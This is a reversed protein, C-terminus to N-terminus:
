TQFLTEVRSQVVQQSKNEWLLASLISPAPMGQAYGGEQKSLKSNWKTTEYRKLFVYVKRELSSDKSVTSEM